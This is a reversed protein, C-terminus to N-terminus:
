RKKVWSRCSVFFIGFQALTGPFTRFSAASQAAKLYGFDDRALLGVTTSSKGTFSLRWSFFFNSMTDSMVWCLNSVSCNIGCSVALIAICSFITM